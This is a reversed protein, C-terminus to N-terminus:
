GLQARLRELFRLSPTEVRLRTRKGDFSLHIMAMAERSEGPYVGILAYASEVEGGYRDLVDAPDDQTDYKYTVQDIMVSARRIECSVKTVGIPAAAETIASFLVDLGLKGTTSTSWEAEM